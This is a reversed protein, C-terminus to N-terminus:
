RRPGEVQGHRSLVRELRPKLAAHAPPLSDLWHGIASPELDLAEDLLRNLTEWSTSDFKKM